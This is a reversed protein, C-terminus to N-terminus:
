AADAALRYRGPDTVFDAHGYSDLLHALRANLRRDVFGGIGPLRLGVRYVMTRGFVAVAAFAAAVKHKREFTIGIEAAREKEGRLFNSVLVFRSFGDELWSHIRGQVSSRDFLDVGMTGRVLSGCIEDDYGERLTIHRATLLDVIEQPTDGLLDEPLGLLFCRYRALEVTAKQEPTFETQGKALLRASLFFTGITGAPMQDVQPIPIGYTAVDWTGSSLLHYRVMSHMLRVKAAAQFGKGHRDLAGPLTTATFFSATEFVRKRAAEDSLTGTMTMPLAAYKNLFTALFAGRIAFPTATAMPIREAEAGRAVLDMDVWGPTDEMSRIFAVLEPPADEVNEVGRECAADLMDVLTRFGHVPILAAYADAVRDGTMTYNRVREILDPRDFVRDTADKHRRFREDDRTAADDLREPVITFDVDGYLAAIEDRQRVVTDAYAQTQVTM